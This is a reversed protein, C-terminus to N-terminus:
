VSGGKVVMLGQHGATYNQTARATSIVEISMANIVDEEKHLAV